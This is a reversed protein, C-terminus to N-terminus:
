VSQSRWTQRLYSWMWRCENAAAFRERADGMFLAGLGRWLRAGFERYCWLPAGFLRRSPLVEPLLQRDKTFVELIRMRACFYGNGTMWRRHYNKEMRNLQIDATVVMAPWYLGRLGGRYLRILFENDENSGIFDKVRQFELSFAGFRTFVERRFAFNAGALFFPRQMNLEFPEDGEDQLALPGQQRPGMWPPPPLNWRPLIKGGALDIHPHEDFVARLTEVWDPAVRVDDDTFAIIAGRSERIGRNRAASLGQEAEFVYRLRNPYQALLMEAVARTNDTSNNDVAIVEWAWSSVAEQELISGLAEGLLDARNYTSVIISLYM